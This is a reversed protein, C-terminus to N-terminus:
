NKITPGYLGRLQEIDTRERQRSFRLVEIDSCYTKTFRFVGVMRDYLQDIRQLRQGDTMKYQGTIVVQDLNRLIERCDALVKNYTRNMEEVESHQYLGSAVANKITIEFTRRVAQNMTKIDQAKDSNRVNGNVKLLSSFYNDFLQFTGNKHRSIERLGSQDTNNKERALSNQLKLKIMQQLQVAREQANASNM